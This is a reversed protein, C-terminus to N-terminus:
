NSNDLNPQRTVGSTLQKQVMLREAAAVLIATKGLDDASHWAIIELYTRGCGMCVDQTNLCCNRCCPSAIMM